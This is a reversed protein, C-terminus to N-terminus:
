AHVESPSQQLMKIVRPVNVRLGITKDQGDIGNALKTIVALLLSDKYSEGHTVHLFKHLDIRAFLRATPHSETAFIATFDM